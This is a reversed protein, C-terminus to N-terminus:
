DRRRDEFVTSGPITKAQRKLEVSIDAIQGPHEIRRHENTVIVMTLTMLPFRILKGQRDLAEIFGEGRAEADYYLPIIQDFEATTRRCIDKAREPSTVILFDDGGVHGIFDEPTGLERVAEILVRSTQHIVGDGKLFGYTDNYAKFNDLDAYCAAFPAEAAVRQRLVREIAVNGPLRTSPSTSFELEKRRLIAAIRAELEIISFPKTVYDDAGLRLARAKEQPRREASLVVVPLHNTRWDGKLAQLLDMGDADPLRLDLLVLDPEWYRAAEITAVGEALEFVAYDRRNLDFALPRRIDDEDDILLIRGKKPRADPSPFLVDSVLRLFLERHVPKSIAGAADPIRIRGGAVMISVVLVPIDKLRPDEKFVTLLRRGDVGPMALDLTILDPHHKRALDVATGGDPATLVRYDAERLIESLLERDLPDDDVALILPQDRLPTPQSAAAGADKEPVDAAAPGDPVGATEDVPVVIRLEEGNVVTATVLKDALASLRRCNREIIQLFRREEPSADERLFSLM